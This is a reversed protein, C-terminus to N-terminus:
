ATMEEPTVAIVDLRDITVEYTRKYGKLAAKIQSGIIELVTGEMNECYGNIVEITTGEALSDTPTKQTMRLVEAESITQFRGRSKLFAISLELQKKLLKDNEKSVELFVYDDVDPYLVLFGRKRLQDYNPGRVHAAYWRREPATGIPRM